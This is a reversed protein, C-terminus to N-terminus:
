ENEAEASEMRELEYKALRIFQFIPIKVVCVVSCLGCDICSYLDYEDAAEEYHGAELFRVLMNVPVDVPCIRICEGCNICPYDSIYPIDAKDQVVIASTDPMVPYDTSFISSGTMPGGIIIRDRDGPDIGLESFINGIPTGIVASVLMQNEAKNVVTILKRDPYQKRDFMEALSVVAEATTFCVGLEECSKGAPVVQGLTNQMIMQPFAAPYATDVRKVEAGIHGYGQVTEGPIAIIVNEVGTIQKIVGIGTKLSELRSKVIYQNTTVLLDNDGGYIVITHISHEPDKFLQLPPAGPACALYDLASDLSLLATQEVFRDDTEESEVAEVTVATYSKGYDGAYASISRITGSVTAVAYADSDPSHSLKQGIRVPDGEKFLAPDRQDFPGEIMLTATKPPPILRPEPLGGTPVEYELRPKVLGFFSKKIM